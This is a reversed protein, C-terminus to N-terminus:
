SREELDCRLCRRAEAQAISELTFGLDVERFDHVRAESALISAKQRPREGDEEPIEFEGVGETPRELIEAPAPLELGKLYRDIAEAARNGAAIAQIVTAPGSVADGGAFVGPVSTAFTRPNATITGRRTIEPGEGDLFSTDPVQGVAPIVMDVNMVFEAEEIPFPRKRATRDFVPHGEAESMLRMRQCRLGAVQGDFGLVETPIVLFHFKIGEEEAQEIEEKHAPMDERRRRYLIRVESAGLRIASRAADIAVDGGGIIAVRKDKVFSMDEGLNMVRLYETGHLVGEMDEGPIGLERSKHAGVAIFVADYENRLEDLTVDKGVRTNTVFEVKGTREIAEIEYRLIDKPLRYDPIGVAMMGGIVPLAESITVRYGRQALRLAATLGAPGSGVIAVKKGKDGELQPPTWPHDMEHDAMFRKLTRTAM